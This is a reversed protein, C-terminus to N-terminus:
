ECEEEEFEDLDEPSLMDDGPETLDEETEEGDIYNAASLVPERGAREMHAQRVLALRVARRVGEQSWPLGNRRTLKLTYNLYQRIADISHGQARLELLKDMVAIEAPNDELMKIKRGLRRSRRYVFRQGYPPAKWTGGGEAKLAHLGEQTRISIMRREFEAFAVLIHITLMAQANSPDLVGHMDVIHLVVGLKELQDLLRAFNIFSRSLRDIKSVVVHDGRRAVKMLERGAPRDWLALKGSTAPDVFYAGEFPLDHSKCYTAIAEKQVAPSAVQKATSARCYAYVKM